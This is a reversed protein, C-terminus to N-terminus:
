DQISKIEELKRAIEARITREDAPKLMGIEKMEQIHQVREDIEKSIQEALQEKDSLLKSPGRSNGDHIVHLGRKMRLNQLQEAERKKAEMELPMVGTPHTLEEPLAKGGKFTFIQSLRNKEADSSFPQTYAPRYHNQKMRIDDIEIKIADASKRRNIYNGHVAFTNENGDLNALSHSSHTGVKPVNINALRRTTKRPDSSGTKAGGPIFTKLEENVVKSKPKPYNIIPKNTNGYIGALLGGLETGQFQKWADVNVGKNDSMIFNCYTLMYRSMKVTVFVVISHIYTSLYNALPAVTM